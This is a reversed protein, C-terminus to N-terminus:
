VPECDAELVYGIARIVDRLSSADLVGIPGASLDLQSTEISLVNECQAVCDATFGFQGAHYPACNPFQSRVAFRSSTCFVALVYHGRNLDERSVVIVSHRGAEPFDALYIEGPRIV